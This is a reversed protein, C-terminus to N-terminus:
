RRSQRIFVIPHLEHDEKQRGQKVGSPSAIGAAAQGRNKPVWQMRTTASLNRLAECHLKEEYDGYGRVSVQGLLPGLDAGCLRHEPDPIVIQSEGTWVWGSPTHKWGCGHKMWTSIEMRYDM